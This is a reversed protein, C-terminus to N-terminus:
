HKYSSEYTDHQLNGISCHNKELKKIHKTYKGINVEGDYRIVNSRLSSSLCLSTLLLSVLSRPHGRLSGGPGAGMGPGKM